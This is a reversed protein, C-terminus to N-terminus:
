RCATWPCTCDVAPAPLIRAGNGWTLGPFLGSVADDIADIRHM